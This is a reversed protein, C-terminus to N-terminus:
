ENYNGREKTKEIPFYLNGGIVIGKKIGHLHWAAMTAIGVHYKVAAEAVTMLGPISGDEFFKADELGNELIFIILERGTM